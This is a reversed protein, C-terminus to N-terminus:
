SNCIGQLRVWDSDSLIEPEDREAYPDNEILKQTTQGTEDRAYAFPATPIKAMEFAAVLLGQAPFAPEVETMTRAFGAMAEEPLEGTTLLGLTTRLGVAELVGEMPDAADRAAAAAIVYGAVVAPDDSNQIVLRNLSIIGGPLATAIQRLEPLVIIRGNAARGFLRDHLRALAATGETDKCRPGTLRQMQGLVVAGIEARKTAPVVSVTQRTMADPLWFVGLGLLGAVVSLTVVQRLRGRQPRARALAKRVREIAEIMLEDEIELTESGEEDVVYIAPTEKPNQRILAPLSWHTLPREARDSIVLTANGFSVTVERRQADADARWLGSSELRDYELLATM